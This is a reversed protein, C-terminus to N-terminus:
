YKDKAVVKLPTALSVPGCRHPPSFPHTQTMYFVRKSKDKAVMKINTSKNEAFYKKFPLWL